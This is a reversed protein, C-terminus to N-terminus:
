AGQHLEHHVLGAALESGLQPVAAVGSQGAPQSVRFHAGRKRGGGAVMVEILATEYDGFPGPLVEPRCRTRDLEGLRDLAAGALQGRAVREPAGVGHMEGASEGDAILLQYDGHPVPAQM